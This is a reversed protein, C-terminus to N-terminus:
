HSRIVVWFLASTKYNQFFVTNVRKLLFCVSINDTNRVVPLHLVSSFQIATQWTCWMLLFHVCSTRNKSFNATKILQDKQLTSAHKICFIWSIIDPKNKTSKHRSIKEIKPTYCILVVQLLDQKKDSMIYMYIKLDKCYYSCDIIRNM